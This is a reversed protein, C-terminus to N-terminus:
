KRRLDFASLLWQKKTGKYNTQVVFRFMKSEFIFKNDFSKKKNFDGFQVVIPIFDEIKFGLENIEKGHKEYIHKLGFGKNNSDNEGWVIDIYGIDQRYLASICEGEKVKLLHKIADKPKGKFQTYVTGFDNNEIGNLNEKIKKFNDGDLIKITAIKNKITVLVPVPFTCKIGVNSEFKIGNNLTVHTVLQKGFYDGDPLDVIIDPFKFYDDVGNLNNMKLLELKVKLAKAKIKLFNETEEM